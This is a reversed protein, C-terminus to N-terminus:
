LTTQDIEFIGHIDLILGVRGDGMITAGAVGRVTKLKEGLNKIVVEQKGLLDDVMLCKQFGDNEVVIVLADWPEKKQPVVKLLRHLRVLPLLSNRVKVVDGKKQITSIDAPSPRLTEKIFVTPIIFREDGIRVIIGDMIALTLPVRMVFRCGKGDVSFIEVKGKLQEITKKVVDMGVGRGSVDTVKDATSFGPEFILNDIQYDTLQTEGSLLGKEKAKQIIKIRNLGQGDDEIEIIVNGGKQYARLHVKGLEPKGIDKRRVPVEIGHDVANRIMHVLPDYLRDVMNRDIETEEGSMVLDVEKGSKKALDRVLRIMKQFTQRIPVMRLSMSIKQLDTTIRKLQSIDRSLKSDNISSFVPNQQVQTQTIVLEGVMDVLNDLKKTDVKITAEALQSSIQKQERLAEVVEKPKAKNEMVLIEGLKLDAKGSKQEKLADSIDKESVVGKGTLIEGLQPVKAEIFDMPHEEKKTAPQEASGEKQLQAIKSLYPELDFPSQGPQGADVHKKLDLIMNKLLDVAELVFDIIKQHIRLKNNRADDLLSEVSHSFKHIDKLNLFGSVGKITHFPRFIANICEKDEPSQELNIINLEISELHEMAESIFDGFLSMDQTLDLSEQQPPQSESPKDAGKAIFQSKDDGTLLKMEKWFNEEEDPSPSESPSSIMAQILKVGKTLLDLGKQGDKIENLIIKEVVKKLGTIIGIQKPDGNGNLKEIAELQELISGIAMFDSPEVLVIRVALQNIAEALKTVDEAM